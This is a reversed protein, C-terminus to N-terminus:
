VPNIFCGTYRMLYWVHWHGHGSNYMYATSGILVASFSNIEYCYRECNCYNAFHRPRWWRREEERCGEQRDSSNPILMIDFSLSECEWEGYCRKRGMTNQSYTEVQPSIILIPNMNTKPGALRGCNGRKCRAKKNRDKNEQGSIKSVYTWDPLTIPFAKRIWVLRYCEAARLLEGNRPFSFVFTFMHM